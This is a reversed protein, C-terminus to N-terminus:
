FPKLTGSYLDVQEFGEFISAMISVPNTEKSIFRDPHNPDWNEDSLGLLHSIEHLLVLCYNDEQAYWTWSHSRGKSDFLYVFNDQTGVESIVQEFSLNLFLNYRKYVEQIQPLCAKTQEIMERARQTSTTSPEVIIGINSDISFGTGNRSIQYGRNINTSQGIVRVKKDSSVTQACEKVIMRNNQRVLERQAKRVEEIIGPHKETGNCGTLITLLLVSKLTLTKM